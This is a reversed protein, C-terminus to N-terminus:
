PECNCHMVLAGPPPDHSASGLCADVPDADGLQDRTFTFTGQGVLEGDQGDLWNAWCTISAVEAPDAPGIPAASEGSGCGFAKAVIALAAVRGLTHLADTM